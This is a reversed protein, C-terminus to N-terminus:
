NQLKGTLRYVYALIEAVARYLAPPIEQGVQCQKYLAQALPKNEIVPVQHDLAKQKIRLALYNKGKAIVRPAGPEMLGYRLAVAYHTPNVIVASATPVEAMMRRRLLDRRLQRIRMKVEPSGESQKWEDRVEQKTMKLENMYKRKQRILDVVGWLFLLAAARWLLGAVTEAVRGLGSELQAQPVLLLEPISPKVVIYLVLLLLPLLATASLTARLNQKPLDKLKRVPNLRNLDPALKAGAIGFGTVTLQAALGISFVIGGFAALLLAKPALLTEVLDATSAPTVEMRCAQALLTRMLERVEPWWHRVAGALVTVFTLFQLGAVFEKSVPFRGEKRAKQIRQPSAKETRNQDAM